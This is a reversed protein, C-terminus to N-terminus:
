ILSFEVMKARIRELAPRLSLVEEPLDFHHNEIHQVLAHYEPVLKVLSKKTIYQDPYESNTTLCHALVVIGSANSSRM